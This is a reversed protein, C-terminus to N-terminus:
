YFSALRNQRLKVSIGGTYVGSLDLKEEQNVKATLRFPKLSRHVLMQLQINM